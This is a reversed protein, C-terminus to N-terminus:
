RSRPVELVFAVDDISLVDVGRFLDDGCTRTTTIAVRAAGPPPFTYAFTAPMIPVVDAASGLSSGDPALGEVTMVMTNSCDIGGSTSANFQLSTAPPDFDLFEPSQAIGGNLMEYLGLMVLDNAGSTTGMGFGLVTGGDLGSGGFVIGRSAYETTLPGPIQFVD